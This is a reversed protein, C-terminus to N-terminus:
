PPQPRLGATKSTPWSKFGVSRSTCHHRRPRSNQRHRQQPRARSLNSSPRHFAIPTPRPRRPPGATSRDSHSGGRSPPSRPPCTIDLSYQTAEPHYLASPSVHVLLALALGSAAASEKRALACDCPERRTIAPASFAPASKGCALCLGGDGARVVGYFHGVEPSCLSRYAKQPSDSIQPWVIIGHQVFGHALTLDAM